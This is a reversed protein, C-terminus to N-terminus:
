PIPVGKTIGPVDIVPLTQSVVSVAWGKAKCYSRVRDRSWGRMYKIINAAEVVRDDRLVVGAYFYPADIVALMEIM